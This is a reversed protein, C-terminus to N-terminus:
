NEFSNCGERPEERSPHLRTPNNRRLLQEARDFDQIAGHNEEEGVPGFKYSAEKSALTQKGIALL